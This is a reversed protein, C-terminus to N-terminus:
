TLWGFDLPQHDARRCDWQIGNLKIWATPSVSMAHKPQESATM